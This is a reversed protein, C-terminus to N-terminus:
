REHLYRSHEWSGLQQCWNAGVVLTNNRSSARRLRAAAPSEHLSGAESGAAHILGDGGHQLDHDQLSRRRGAQGALHFRWALGFHYKPLHVPQMSGDHHRDSPNRDLKHGSLHNRGVMPSRHRLTGCLRDLYRDHHCSLSRVVSHSHAQISEDVLLTNTRMRLSSCKYRPNSVKSHIDEKAMDDETAQNPLFTVRLGKWIEERHFLLTHVIISVVAGLGLGYALVSTTSLYIPSYEHYATENLAYSQTIVM